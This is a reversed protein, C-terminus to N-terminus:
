KHAKKKIVFYVGAGIALVAALVIIIIVIMNGSANTDAPVSSDDGSGTGPTVTSDQASTTPAATATAEGSAAGGDSSGQTTKLVASYDTSPTGGVIAGTGAVAKETLVLLGNMNITGNANRTLKISTDTSVFWDAAVKDGASNIGTKSTQDYFYNLIGYIKTSDQTGKAKIQEGTGLNETRYSVLGNVAYDTNAATNTYLAVNYSGNNFSTCNEIQIDPCSNADIGKSKNDYAVCNIVKHYGSISEGGLKFGNGNGAPTGDELYGNAYAVCNKITVVGIAGTEVKAYMDWGDDANNYSICGDFVIGEGVTLKAAFGDADEYGSDMNGYSTCNLILDNAPWDEYLDHSNYRSVQIGTNGNHYANVNQIICNCGSLQIGKQGDSSNTVDFGDFIWYDGGLVMGACNGQFNFVPRTTSDPDAMLYIPAEATGDNGREVRIVSSLKYEGGELLIIQGATAYKVASYIDTPNEKTGRDSGALGSPSVYIVDQEFVRRTVDFISNVTGYSSLVEYESPKYDADPTFQAVITTVGIDLKATFRGYENAKIEASDVLVAGSDTKITVKGDANAFVQMEYNENGTYLASVVGVVPVVTTMEREEAPADTAPDSTTFSIDTVTISANRAAFFGVYINDKDIQTLSNRELDYYKQSTVNGDKDAYSVIYGTNNREITFQFTTLLYQDPLTEAPPNTCNGILNYTGPDDGKSTELTTMISSFEESAFTSSNVSNDAIKEATVGLKALSGIGLKMSVKKSGTTVVRQADADYYYEVKSVIAMYANNWFTSGDGNVGVADAAMMGFGDQGNSYTWSDVTITASLKFNETDPDITTYYFALGDTSAPVIKGKGNISSISLLGDNASGSYYNSDLSISAGYASFAWARQAEETIKVDIESRQTIESGRVAQVAFVYTEGVTLETKSASTKTTRLVETFSTEGQKKYSLIYEAAEDVPNWIIEASGNGTSTGSVISPTELPLVFSVASKEATKGTEGDRVATIKFSYQGSAEPTFTVSGTTGETAASLTEVEAGDKYMTIDVKDAGDYGILMKYSVTIKGNDTVVGTIEPAAVQGWAARDPREGSATQVARASILRFGRNLDADTPSVIQYTGATLGTYTIVTTSTTAVTEIGENNAILNGNADIIGVRSTNSSGTSSVSLTVDATGFVSFALAGLYNKEIEICKMTGDTNTRYKVTGVTKFYGDGYQTGEAVADKDAVGSASLATADFYYDTSVPASDGLATVTITYLRAGREYSANEPSIVRYTGAALGSYTMTTRDTASATTVGEKNSIVNGSADTLAVASTNAGGTSSMEVVVDSTQTTTFEVAGGAAKAVEVSKTTTKDDSIRQTVSGVIKFFGNAFTTGEAIATKDAVGEASIQTADFVKTDTDEAKVGAPIMGVTLLLAMVASLIAKKTRKM